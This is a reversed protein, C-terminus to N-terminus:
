EVRYGLSFRRCGENFRASYTGERGEVVPVRGSDEIRNPMDAPLFEFLEHEEAQKALKVLRAHDFGQLAEFLEEKVQTMDHIRECQSDAPALTGTDVGLEKAPAAMENITAVNMDELVELLNQWM